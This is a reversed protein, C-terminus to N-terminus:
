LRAVLRLEKILDTRVTHEMLAYQVNTTELELATIDLVATLVTQRDLKDRERLRANGLQAHLVPRTRDLATIDLQATLVDQRDMNHHEQM